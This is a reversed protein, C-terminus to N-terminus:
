IFMQDEGLDEAGEWFLGIDRRYLETGSLVFFQDGRQEAAVFGGKGNVRLKERDRAPIQVTYPQLARAIKGSPIQGFALQRIADDSGECPIIVPLLPSDVMRYAAAVSRYAFNVPGRPTFLFRDLLGESDLRADGARWYVEEFWHRIAQPDGLAPSGFTALTARMATALARIEAPAPHDPASFLTLTSDEPPRRGERNVRGAAQIVSDLGAEARWGVPFDLDVGAEILSTAILRCPAGQSLRQRIDAIIERRHAPYQRTTLHLAGPQDQVKRFLALAHARSNVIVMSQPAQQLAAALAGDEIPGGDVVQARRLRRFLGEPDPALERGALALGIKRKRKAHRDLEASDFAPQTATCLVITCGYQAALAEIMKLTPALLGRPLCQAEDLIIISGAINHLKRCRSPRASFLSEFLQVNTTVVLPAAWDEMALRLKDRAEAGPKESDIASHHELVLDGFMDRFTAATQDIISTYPIAYIIRRHGHVQAHDLAFGLSALTKGGGTPVTLTFLGPPLVAQARLHTLITGRLRNLDTDPFGAIRRDFAARMDPLVDALAPWDRALPDTKGYFAETDRFDADVLCSFVMRGALSLDFAPSEPRTKAVLERAAPMLDVDTAATVEAPIRDVYGDRRASLSADGLSDPLGAHHGLIAQALLDAAFGTRPDSRRILFMGGATSHDVRELRGQLVRDFAPDHKGFDHLKGALRAAEALGLPAAKAAALDAVQRLHDELLQWDSRDSKSGSHAYAPM